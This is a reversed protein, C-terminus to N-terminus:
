PAEATQLALGHLIDQESVTVAGLGFARMSCLLIAAGAVITEARDPHLGTVGRREALPLGALLELMRQCAAVTIEHGHVKWPDFPDLALDIAALVTPTGAVAIGRAIGRRHAEPVGADIVGRADDLLATLEESTPPDGLLHRESQRVAGLKTSVHFLLAAGEGVIFETSGGGIDVILSRGEGAAFDGAAAGRFAMQAESEGDIVRLGIAFEREIEAAFEAGNSAERVASTAIAAVRECGAGKIQGRYTELAAHVRDIAARNLVGSADVGDGLRTVISERSIERVTGHAVDALLLRTSNSGIDIAGIRM